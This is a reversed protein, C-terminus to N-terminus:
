LDSPELVHRDADIVKFGAKMILERGISPKGILVLVLCHEYDVPCQSLNRAVARFSVQSTQGESLPSRVDARLLNLGGDHHNSAYAQDGTEHQQGIERGM